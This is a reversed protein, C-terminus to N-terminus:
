ALEDSLKEDVVFIAVFATAIVFVAVSNLKVNVFKGTPADFPNSITKLDVWLTAVPVIVNLRPETCSSRPAVAVGISYM